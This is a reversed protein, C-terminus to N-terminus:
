KAGILLAVAHAGDAERNQDGRNGQDLCADPMVSLRKPLSATSGSKLPRSGLRSCVALWPPTPSQNQGCEAMPVELIGVNQANHMCYRDGRKGRGRGIMSWSTTNWLPHRHREGTGTSKRGNRGTVNLRQRFGTLYLRDALPLAQRYLDAGGVFIVEEDDRCAAIADPISRAVIHNSPFFLFM